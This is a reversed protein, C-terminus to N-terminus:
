FNLARETFEVSGPHIYKNEYIPSSAIKYYNLLGPTIILTNDGKKNKKPTNLKTTKKRKPTM